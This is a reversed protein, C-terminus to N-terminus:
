LERRTRWKEEMWGDLDADVDWARRGWVVSTVPPGAAETTLDFFVVVGEGRDHAKKQAAVFGLGDQSVLLERLQHRKDLEFLGDVERCFEELSYGCFQPFCHSARFTPDQLLSGPIGAIWLVAVKGKTPDMETQIEPEPVPAPAPAPDPHPSPAPEQRIPRQSAPTKRHRERERERKAWLIYYHMHQYMVNREMRRLYFCRERRKVNVEVLRFTLWVHWDTANDYKPWGNDNVSFKAADDHEGHRIHFILDTVNVAKQSENFLDTELFHTVFHDWSRKVM